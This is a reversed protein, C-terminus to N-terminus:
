GFLVADRGERYGWERLADRIRQRAGKVGVAAVVPIGPRERLWEAPRIEVGLRRRGVKTPAIDVLCRLRAGRARLAKAARVGDRGAGWVVVERGALGWAAVLHEAKCEFFARPRYRRDTRTLREPHDRLETLTEPLKAFRWGARWARLWLDYDEPFPLSRYGGAARLSRSRMTVSPHPLPAEVFLDAVIEEHTLLSNMWDRYAAMEASLPDGFFEVRSSVVDVDPHADLHALQRELREPHMRDDADIRAAYPARLREIGENLTPVIGRRPLRHVEFRSDRAAVAAALDPGSDASGDDLVLCRFGARTQARLSDLTEALTSAADRVPLLVDVAAGGSL